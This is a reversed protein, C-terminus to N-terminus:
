QRVNQNTEVAHRLEELLEPWTKRGTTSLLLQDGLLVECLDARVRKSGDDSPMVRGEFRIRASDGHPLLAYGLRAEYSTLDLLAKVGLGDSNTSFACTGAGSLDKLSYEAHNFNVHQLEANIRCDPIQKAALTRLGTPELWVEINAVSGGLKMGSDDDCLLKAFKNLDLSEVHLKSAGTENTKMDISTVYDAKGIGVAPCELVINAEGHTDSLPVFRFDLRNHQLENSQQSLPTDFSLEGAYPQAKEGSYAFPKVRLKLGTVKSPLKGRVDCNLLAALSEIDLNKLTVQVPGAHQNFWDLQGELLVADKGLWDSHAIGSILHGGGPISKLAVEINNRADWTLKLTGTPQGNGTLPGYDLDLAMAPISELRPNGVLPLPVHMELPEVLAHLSLRGDKVAFKVTAGTL